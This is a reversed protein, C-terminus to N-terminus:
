IIGLTARVSSGEVDVRTRFMSFFDFVTENQKKTQKNDKNDPKKPNKKEV